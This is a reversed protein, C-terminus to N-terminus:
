VLAHVIVFIWGWAILQLLLFLAFPIDFLSIVNPNIYQFHLLNLVINYICDATIATIFALFFILFINRTHPTETKRWLRFALLAAVVDLGTEGILSFYGATTATSPSAELAIYIWAFVAWAIITNITIFTTSLNIKLM